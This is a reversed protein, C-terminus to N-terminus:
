LSIGAKLVQEQFNFDLDSWQIFESLFYKTEAENMLIDQGAVAKFPYLYIKYELEQESNFFISIGVALGEQTDASFYQDFVFNGLSYFIPKNQYIEMGQVVHPHHGIIMDAGQEIFSHAIQKQLNNQYHTYEVGWHINVIVLDNNQKLDQIIKEAEAQNFKGYVMSFGALAIKYNGLNVIQFSCEGVQRDVCGSYNFGLNTLNKRTEEVGRQGQDSFHNNALNFFNFNYDKLQKILDSSFSFDYSMEPQYHAGKDTVAGELNASILDVGQFFKNEQGALKEFIYNLGKEAILEKVHRDLMLDGFFLFNLVEPYKKITEGKSKFIKEQDIDKELSIVEQSNFSEAKEKKIQLYFYFISLSFSILFIFLAIFLAKREKKNESNSFIDKEKKM